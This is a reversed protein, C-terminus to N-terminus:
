QSKKELTYTIRTGREKDTETVHMSKGDPSVAMRLRYHVAGEQKDTEVITRANIRKLSVTNHAPDGHIPYEKGDFKAIYGEGAPNSAQLGDPASHYTITMGNESINTVRKAQWSGSVPNSGAPGPKVRTYIEEATVPPGNPAASDTIQQTLRNGDASVTDIESYVTRDSQKETIRISDDMKQVAVTSFYPSGPVPYDKGDAKVKIEPICSTCEYTGGQLLYVEPKKPFRVSDPKAVWTGDFPTLALLTTPLLLFLFFLCKM